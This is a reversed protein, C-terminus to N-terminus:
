IEPDDNRKPPFLIKTQKRIYYKLDIRLAAAVFVILVVAYIITSSISYEDRYFLSGEGVVPAPVVDQPLGYDEAIERLRLLHIVPIRKEAM